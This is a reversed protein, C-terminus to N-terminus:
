YLGVLGTGTFATVKKARIPILTGAKCGTLQVSQDYETTLTLDGDSGIWLARTMQSFESAGPTIAFAGRAPDQIHRYHDRFLEDAM